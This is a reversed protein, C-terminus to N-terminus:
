AVDLTGAAVIVGVAGTSNVIATTDFLETAVTRVTDGEYNAIREHEVEDIVIAFPYDVDDGAGKSPLTLVQIRAM